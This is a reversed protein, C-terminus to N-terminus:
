ILINTCILQDSADNNCCRCVILRSKRLEVRSLDVRSLVSSSDVPWKAVKGGDGGGYCCCDRGEGMM